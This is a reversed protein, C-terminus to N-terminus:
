SLFVESFKIKKPKLIDSNVSSSDEYAKVAELMMKVNRNMNVMTICKTKQVNLLEHAASRSIFEIKSFDLIAKKSTKPIERSIEKVTDRTAISHANIKNYIHIKM